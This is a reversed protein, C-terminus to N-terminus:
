WMGPVLRFRVRQRYQAYGSLNRTLFEEEDILRWALVPLIAVVVLIGWWSGLAIPMGLLMSLGGAYMPHRVWAYPGSCIVTQDPALEITTASFTNEKFVFYIALWGLLILGDGALTVAPPMRSWDLRHDLVPVIMLGIFALTMLSMIIKQRIQKEAFPGGRLRRQLLAPDAKILYLTIAVASAFYVALFTWAQWYSLTGAAIFILAAMAAFLCLLSILARKTLTNMMAIYCRGSERCHPAPREPIGMM